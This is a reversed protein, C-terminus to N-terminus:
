RTQGETNGVNFLLLERSDLILTEGLTLVKCLPYIDSSMLGQISM